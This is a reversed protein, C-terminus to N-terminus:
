FIHSDQRTFVKHTKVPQYLFLKSKSKVKNEAVRQPHSLCVEVYSITIRQM